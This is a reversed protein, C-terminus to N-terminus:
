CGGVFPTMISTLDEPSRASGFDELLWEGSGRQMSYTGSFARAEIEGADNEWEPVVVLISVVVVDDTASEVYYGGEVTSVAPGTRDTASGDANAVQEEVSTVAATADPSAIAEMVVPVEELPPLIRDSTGAWRTLTAAFEAAGVDDLQAQQQATLVTQATVAQGGLCGNAVRAEESASTPDTPPATTGPEQGDGRLAGSIWVTLGALLAVAVIVVLLRRIWSRRVPMQPQLSM